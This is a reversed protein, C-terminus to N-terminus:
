AHEIALHNASWAGPWAEAGAARLARIRGLPLDRAILLPGPGDCAAAAPIEAAVGTAGLSEECPLYAAAGGVNPRANPHGARGICGVVCVTTMLEVARARACGFVRHFGSLKETM